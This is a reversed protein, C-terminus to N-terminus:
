NTGLTVDGTVQLEATYRGAAGLNDSLSFGTCFCEGSWKDSGGATGQPSFEFTKTTGSNGLSNNLIAMFAPDYPGELSITCDKLGGVYTKSSLSLVSTEATDAKPTFTVSSIYATYATLAASNNDLKFVASKGHGFGM